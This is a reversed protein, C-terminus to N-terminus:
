AWLSCIPDPRAIVFPTLDQLLADTQEVRNLCPSVTAYHVGLQAAIEALGYGYQCYAQHVGRRPDRHRYLLVSLLPRQVQTQRCSIERIVRNPQHM